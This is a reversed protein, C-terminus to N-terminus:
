KGTLQGMDVVQSAPPATIKVPAGLDSYEQTFAVTAPGSPANAGASKPPTVTMTVAFKRLLGDEDVWVDAPLVPFGLSKRAETIGRRLDPSAAKAAQDLDVTARYHTTPTGGVTEKGVTTVDKGIGKLYGLQEAPSMRALQGLGAAAMAKADVKVWPKGGFSKTLEAPLKTYMTGDVLRVETDGFGPITMRMETNGTVMDFAGGGSMKVPPQGPQTITYQMAIRASKAAITKTNAALVIDAPSVTASVTPAAQGKADGTCGALGIVVAAVITLGTATRGRRQVHEGWIKRNPGGLTVLPAVAGRTIEVPKIV